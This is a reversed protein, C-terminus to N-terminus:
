FSGELIHTEPVGDNVEEESVLVRNHDSYDTKSTYTLTWGGKAVSLKGAPLIDYDEDGEEGKVLWAEYFKGSEPDPLDALVSFTFTGDEYKRTAIASANGGTVDTLEAKDVDEPIQVNFKNELADEVSLTEPTQTVEEEPAQRQRWYVVGALIALIVVGIVIDRRNM